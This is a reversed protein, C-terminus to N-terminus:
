KNACYGRHIQPVIKDNYKNIPESAKIIIVVTEVDMAM